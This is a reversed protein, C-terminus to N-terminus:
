LFNASEKYIVNGLCFTWLSEDFEKFLDRIGGGRDGFRNLLVPISPPRKGDQYGILKNEVNKSCPLCHDFRFYYLKFKSIRYKAM